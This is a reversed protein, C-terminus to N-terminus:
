LSSITLMIIGDYTGPPVDKDVSVVPTFEPSMKVTSRADTSHNRTEITLKDKDFDYRSSSLSIFDASVAVPNYSNTKIRYQISSLRLLNHKDDAYEVSKVDLMPNYANFTEKKDILVSDINIVTPLTATVTQFALHERSLAPPILILFATALLCFLLSFRM